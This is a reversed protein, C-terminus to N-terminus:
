RPVCFGLDPLGTYGIATCTETDACGSTARVSCYTACVSEAAPRCGLGPRCDSSTTCTSGVRGNVRPAACAFCSGDNGAPYCAEMAGCGMSTIPDCVACPQCLGVGLGQDATDRFELVCGEGDPCGTREGPECCYRRCRRLPDCGHGPGCREQDSCISGATNDGATSCRPQPSANVHRPLYYCANGADCGNTILDCAASVCGRVITESADTASDGTAADLPGGADPEAQPAGCALLTLLAVLLQASEVSLVHRRRILV